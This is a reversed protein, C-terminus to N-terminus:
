IAIGVHGAGRHVGRIYAGSVFRERGALFGGQGEAARAYIDDHFWGSGSYWGKFGGGGKCSFAQSFQGWRAQSFQGWGWSSM